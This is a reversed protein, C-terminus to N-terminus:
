GDAPVERPTRIENLRSSLNLALNCVAEYASKGFGHVLGDAFECDNALAMFKHGEHTVTEEVRISHTPKPQEM